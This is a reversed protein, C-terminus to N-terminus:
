RLYSLLREAATAATTTGREVAQSLEALEARVRPHHQFRVRLGGDILQWMWALAQRRRKSAFEGSSMM